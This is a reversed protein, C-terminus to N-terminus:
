KGRPKKKIKRFVFVGILLLVIAAGAGGLVLANEQVIRLLVKVFMSDM